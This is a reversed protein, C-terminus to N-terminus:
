TCSFAYELPRKISIIRSPDCVVEDLLCRELHSVQIKSKDTSVQILESSHIRNPPVVTTVRKQPFLSRVLDIAPVLDSDNTILIARDFVDQYGLNLLYLAINYHNLILNLFYALLCRLNKHRSRAVMALPLARTFVM